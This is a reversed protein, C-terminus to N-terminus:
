TELLFVDEKFNLPKQFHERVKSGDTSGDKSSGDKAAFSAPTEFFTRLPVLRLSRTEFPGIIGLAPLHSRSYTIGTPFFLCGQIKYLYIM